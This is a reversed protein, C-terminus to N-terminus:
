VINDQPENVVPAEPRHTSVIVEREKLQRLGDKSFLLRLLGNECVSAVKSLDEMEEPLIVYREWPRANPVQKSRDLKIKLYGHAAMITVDQASFGPINFHALRDWTLVEDPVDKETHVRIAVPEAPPTQPVKVTLMGHEVYAAANSVSADEPLQQMTSMVINGTMTPDNDTEACESSSLGERAEIFLMHDKVHVKVDKASLGPVNRKLQYCKTKAESDSPQTDQVPIDFPQMAEMKHMVVELVGDQCWASIKSPDTTDSYHVAKKLVTAGSIPDTAVIRVIKDYELVVVQVGSAPVGPIHAVLRYKDEEEILRLSPDQV